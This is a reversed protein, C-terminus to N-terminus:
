ERRAGRERIHRLYFYMAWDQDNAYPDAFEGKVGNVSIPFLYACTARGDPTFMGLVARYAAEARTRYGEDGSVDAYGEYHCATLGSWYHPFTDGYLRRKGFWFGDWHRIAVEYLHWDPQRGNFLELASLQRRAEALYKAEGTVKYLKLMLEVAPASISQEFKVEHPPYCLKNQLITDGHARFCALIDEKEKEFGAATLSTLMAEMPIEFAYFSEGGISYFRKMVRYAVLLDEVRGWLAYLEMYLTAVWPYNYPRKNSDDRGYDNCVLGGERDVVERELYTMYRRLSAELEADRHARLYAAMLVGMGVRERAGNYNAYRTCYLREEENDYALYAGDLPTGRRDVQQHAAIFRCRKELLRRFKPQVLVRCFTSVGGVAIRYVREGLTRCPDIVTVRGDRVSFALERGGLTVKVDSESFAFAPTVELRLEEGEFLLYNEAKVDIHRPNYQSLKAYFDSVGGHWFLRWAVTFSEGPALMEVPSPHLIFDGRDNSGCSEAIQNREVSYGCLSGETLVLGLHPGEGGMRLAMVYSVQGGCFIHTHCRRYLCVEASDYNDNFPTYIGLSDRQTCLYKNTTNTFTFREFLVEGEYCAEHSVALEAPANVKGWECFGEVWNMKYKDDPHIFEKM